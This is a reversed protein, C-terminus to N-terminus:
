NIKDKMLLTVMHKDPNEFNTQQLNEIHPFPYFVINNTSLLLIENFYTKQTCVVPYEFSILIHFFIRYIYLKPNVDVALGKWCIYLSKRVCRCSGVNLFM